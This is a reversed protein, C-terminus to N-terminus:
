NDISRSFIVKTCHVLYHTFIALRLNLIMGLKHELAFREIDFLSMIVEKTSFGVEQGLFDNDLARGGNPILSPM